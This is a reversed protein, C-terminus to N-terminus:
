VVATQAQRLPKGPTSNGSDLFRTDINAMNNILLPTLAGLEKEAVAVMIKGVAPDVPVAVAPKDHHCCKRGFIYSKCKDVFAAMSSKEGNEESAESKVENQMACVTKLLGTLADGKYNAPDVNLLSIDVHEALAPNKSIAAAMQRQMNRVLTAINSDETSLKVSSKKNNTTVCCDEEGRSYDRRNNYGDRLGDPFFHDFKKGGILEKNQEAPPPNYKIM